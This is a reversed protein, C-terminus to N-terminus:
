SEAFFFIAPFFASISKQHFNNCSFQIIYRSMQSKKRCFPQQKSTSFGTKFEFHSRSSASSQQAPRPYPGIANSTFINAQQGHIPFLSRSKLRTHAALRLNLERTVSGLQLQCHYTRLGCAEETLTIAAFCMGEVAM